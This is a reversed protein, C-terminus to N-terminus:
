AWPADQRCSTLAFDAGGIAQEADLLLLMRSGEGAPLTGIGVVGHGAASPGLDPPPMIQEAQLHLVDSVSDVVAGVTRDSLRLVVVVTTPSFEASACGFKVRLDLVPVIIGRLNVVGLVHAPAGAMRTPQEFSRIEQVRLIEIGYEEDGLRCSLYEGGTPTARPPDAQPRTPGNAAAVRNAPREETLTDMEHSEQTAPM